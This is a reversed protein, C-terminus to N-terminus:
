ERNTSGAAGWVGQRSPPPFPQSHVQATIDDRVCPEEGKRKKIPEAQREKGM